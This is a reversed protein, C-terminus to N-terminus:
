VNSELNNKVNNELNKEVNPEIGNNEPPNNKVEQDKIPATEEKNNM